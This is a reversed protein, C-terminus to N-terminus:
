DQLLESLMAKVGRPRAGAGGVNNNMGAVVATGALESKNNANVNLPTVVPTVRVDRKADDGPKVAVLKEIKAEVKIPEPKRREPRDEVEGDDMYLKLWETDLDKHLRFALPRKVRLKFHDLFARGNLDIMDDRMHRMRNAGDLNEDVVLEFGIAHRDHDLYMICHTFKDLGFKKKAGANFSIVGSPHLTVRPSFNKGVETFKVFSM